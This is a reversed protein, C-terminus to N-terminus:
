AGAGAMEAASRRSLRVATLAPEASQLDFPVEQGDTQWRVPLGLDAATEFVGAEDPAEDCKTVLLHTPRLNAHDRAANKALHRAMGAPLVLHIERPELGRLLEATFERDLRQRPSRGPTDVLIVDCGVLATRARALDEQGYAVQMPLRAIEAYTRLQEIAGIRYTDLSLLGVQRTGFVRPHTALKALTTTKGGGTPGVLAIVLPGSDPQAPVMLELAALPASRVLLEPRAASAPDAAAVEFQLGAATRLRRVHLIVADAGIATQAQRMLVAVNGGVFTRVPM